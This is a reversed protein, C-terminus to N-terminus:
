DEVGTQFYYWFQRNLQGRSSSTKKRTKKRSGQCVLKEETKKPNEEGQGALGPPSHKPKKGSVSKM